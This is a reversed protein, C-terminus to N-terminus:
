LDPTQNKSKLSQSDPKIIHQEPAPAPKASKKVARVRGLLAKRLGRLFFDLEYGVPNLSGQFTVEIKQEKKEAFHGLAHIATLIEAITPKSDAPLKEAVDEIFTRKRRRLRERVQNMTLLLPEGRQARIRNFEKEMRDCVAVMVRRPNSRGPLFKRLSYGGPGYNAILIHIDSDGHAVVIALQGHFADYLAQGLEYPENRRFARISGTTDAPHASMEYFMIKKPAGVRGKSEKFLQRFKKPINKSDNAGLVLVRPGLGAAAHKKNKDLVYEIRRKLFQTRWYTIETRM